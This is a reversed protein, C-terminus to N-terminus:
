SNRLELRDARARRRLVKITGFLSIALWCIEIVFSALNFTFCLSVILLCAGVGNLALYRLHDSRLVEAQNLFFALLVCFVGALGVADYWAFSTLHTM